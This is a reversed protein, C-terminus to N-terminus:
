KPQFLSPLASFDYTVGVFGSVYKTKQLENKDNTFVVSLPIRAAASIPVEFTSFLKWTDTVPMPLASKNTFVNVTAGNSWEVSRNSVIVDRLLRASLSANVTFQKVQFAKDAGLHVDTTVAYLANVTLDSDQAFGQDFLLGFSYKNKGPEQTLHTGAAKFSLQPSRQVRTMLATLRQGQLTALAQNFVVVDGVPIDNQLVIMQNVVANLGLTYPYWKSARPDRDGVLRYKADWTFADFLTNADPLGSIGTIDKEPIKSGFVVTGGLRRLADHQRYRYLESYVTPEALAFLALANLNLSVATANANFFNQGNLALAFMEAFGSKEALNGAAANTSPANVSKASVEADKVKEDVKAREEPTTVQDILTLDPVSVKLVEPDRALRRLAELYLARKDELKMSALDAGRARTTDALVIKWRAHLVSDIQATFSEPTPAQAAAPRALCVLAAAAVLTSRYRHTM